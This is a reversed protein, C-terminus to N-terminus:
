DRPAKRLAKRVGGATVGFRVAVGTLGADAVLALLEKPDEPLKRNGEGGRRRGRQTKAHSILAALYAGTDLLDLGRELALLAFLEAREASGNARSLRAEVWEIEDTLRPDSAYKAARVKIAALRAEPTTAILAADLAAFAEESDDDARVTVRRRLPGLGTRHWRYVPAM